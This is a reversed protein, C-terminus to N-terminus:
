QTCSTRAPLVSVPYTEGSPMEQVSTSVAVIAIAVFTETPSATVLWAFATMQVLTKLLTVTVCGQRRRRGLAPGVVADDDAPTDDAERHRSLEQLASGAQAERHQLLFRRDRAMLGTVVATDDMRADVVLRARELGAKAELSSVAEQAEAVCVVDTVPDVSLQDHRDRLSVKAGEVHKELAPAGVADNSELFHTRFPDALPLRV